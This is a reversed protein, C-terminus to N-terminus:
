ALFFEQTGEVYKRCIPCTPKLSTWKGACSQCCVIHGCPTFCCDRKGTCGKYGYDCKPFHGHMHVQEKYSKLENEVRELDHRLGIIMGQSAELDSRLEFNDEMDQDHQWVDHRHQEELQINRGAQLQIHDQLRHNAAELARNGNNLVQNARREICLKRNTERWCREYPRYHAVKEQLSHNKEELDHCNNCKIEKSTLEEM